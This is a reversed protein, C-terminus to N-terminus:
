PASRAIPLSLHPVGHAPRKPSRREIKVAIGTVSAERTVSTSRGEVRAPNRGAGAPTPIPVEDLVGRGTDGGLAQDVLDGSPVRGLDSTMLGEGDATHAGVLRRVGEVPVGGIDVRPRGDLVKACPGHRGRGDHMVGVVHGRVRTRAARREVVARRSGVVAALRQATRRGDDDLAKPPPDDSGGHAGRENVLETVVAREPTDARRLVDRWVYVARQIVRARSAIGARGSKVCLAALAEVRAARHIEHGIRPESSRGVERQLAQVSGQGVFGDPASASPRCVAGVEDREDIEFRRAM